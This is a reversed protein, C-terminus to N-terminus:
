YVTKRGYRDELRIIDDESIYDGTQVEIIELITNGLNELSHVVGIPLYISENETLTFTKDGKIVKATGKVVIWHESRHQHKQLSIKADPNVFIHKTHHRLGESISIYQGWPRYVTKNHTAESRNDAKLKTVIDKVDQANGKNAILLADPTDIVVLNQVGIVAVLKDKSYIYNNDSDQTIIDGNCANGNDDKKAIEWVFDWSGIDTWNADLVVVAGNNIHEMVAYDISINPCQEFANKDLRNFDLDNKSKSVADKVHKLLEPQYKELEKLYNSAKFCFMGSNWFYKGSKLFEEATKIDPKEKFAVIKAAGDKITEGQEIYGYGTHAKTPKIGFTVIHGKEALGEAIKAAVSFAAIDEIIHDAPLVMLIPDNNKEIAFLAAAAIAPATNKGVPELIINQAKHGINQINEAVIFRHEENCVIVPDGLNLKKLRSLTDQFLTNESHLPLFQKPYLSRSLPWLRTGSGGSLIIPIM